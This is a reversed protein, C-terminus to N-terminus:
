FKFDQPKERDFAVKPPPLDPYLNSNEMAGREYSKSGDLTLIAPLIIGAPNKAEDLTLGTIRIAVDHRRAEEHLRIYGPLEKIEAATFTTHAVSLEVQLRIAPSYKAEGTEPDIETMQRIIIPNRQEEDLTAAKGGKSKEKDVVQNFIKTYNIELIQSFHSAMREFFGDLIEAQIKPRREDELAPNVLDRLKEGLPRKDSNQSSAM